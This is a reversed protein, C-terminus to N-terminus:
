DTASKLVELSKKTMVIMLFAGFFAFLVDSALMVKQNSIMKFSYPVLELLLQGLSLLCTIKFHQRTIEISKKFPHPHAFIALLPLYYLFIGPLFLLPLGILALFSYYISYLLFTIFYPWFINTEVKIEEFIAMKLILKLSFFLTFLMIAINVFFSLLEENKPILLSFFTDMLSLGVFIFFYNRYVRM